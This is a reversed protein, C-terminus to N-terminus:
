KKNIIHKIIEIDIKLYKVSLIEHLYNPKQHVNNEEFFRRIEATLSLFFNNFNYYM